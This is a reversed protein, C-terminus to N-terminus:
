VDISYIFSTVLCRSCPQQGTLTKINDGGIQYLRCCHVQEGSPNLGMNWPGRSFILFFRLEALNGSHETFWGVLSSNLQRRQQITKILSNAQLQHHQVTIQNSICAWQYCYCIEDSKEKRIFEQEPHFLLHSHPFKLMIYNNFPRVM